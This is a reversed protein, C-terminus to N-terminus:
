PWNITITTHKKPLVLGAPLLDDDPTGAPYAEIQARPGHRRDRDWIRIHECFRSALKDASPGHAYVGFEFETEEENISRKTLYAFGDRDVIATAGWPYTPSVTGRAIAPKKASLFGYGPETTALWLELDDFPEMGGFTVQSWREVRPSSLADQLRDADVAADDDVMLGVESGALPVKPQRQEGAGQMPVFGCMHYDRAVLRAGDPEFCVSRTLSRMRLPVVLRGGAALQEVWAPPLDWAGVAVIIRDFPAYEVAGFEGDACLVRVGEVEAAALCVRARQVVDPDIDITTVSGEPGVLEALLAAQYGGSGIELVRHGPQVQAQELMTAIIGPASVSSIPAGHEDRKTVPAESTAYATELSVGPIFLHRPVARFADAMRDTGIAGWRCLREVMRAHLEEASPTQDTDPELSENM